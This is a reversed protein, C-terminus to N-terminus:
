FPHPTCRPPRCLALMPNGPILIPYQIVIPVTITSPLLAPTSYFLSFVSTSKPLLFTSALRSTGSNHTNLDSADAVIATLPRFLPRRPSFLPLSHTHTHTHTHPDYGRLPLTHHHFLLIGSQRGSGFSFQSKIQRNIEIRIIRISVQVCARM